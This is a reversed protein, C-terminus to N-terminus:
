NRKVSVIAAEKMKEAVIGSHKSQLIIKRIDM